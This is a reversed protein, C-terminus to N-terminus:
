KPNSTDKRHWKVKLKCLILYKEYWEKAKHHMGIKKESQILGCHLWNTGINVKEYMEIFSFSFIILKLWNINVLGSWDYMKVCLLSVVFM